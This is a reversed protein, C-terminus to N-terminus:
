SHLSRSCVRPSSPPLTGNAVATWFVDDLGFSMRDAHGGTALLWHDLECSSQSGTPLAKRELENKHEFGKYHKQLGLLVEATTEFLAPAKPGSVKGLGDRAHHAVDNRMKKLTSSDYRSDDERYQMRDAM